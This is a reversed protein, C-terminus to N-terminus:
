GVGWRPNERALRVVLNRLETPTPPRGPSKSGWRRARGTVLQQHWRLVTEPRVMLCSWRERPLLRSLSALLVRDQATFRPSGKKRRLIELQHRLVLIEVDKADVRRSASIVARLVLRCIFYALSLLSYGGPDAIPLLGL